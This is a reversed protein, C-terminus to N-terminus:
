DREGVNHHDEVRGDETPNDEIQRLRRFLNRLDRGGGITFWITVCFATFVTLWTWVRWFDLWREDPVDVLLNYITGIIFVVTWVLPWGLTIYTVVRDSGTFEKTFGLKELWTTPPPVDGGEGEVAHRGRHLMRDMDFETRGLISVLVYMGVAYVSTWFTIEQGTLGDKIYLAVACPWFFTDLGAIFVSADYQKIVVGTTALVMGTIMAAWAGGTSGRKWYLSGTLTLFMAIYQTPRYLLSFVFIFVAVGLVSARLLWLHQRPTFPRKRFPLIVDQILISGWSHLYTDNTSIFAALMAACMLGLLGPPLMTAVALPTRLQNRLTETQEPTDASVQAIADHVVAADEAFDPHHMFTRVCIPLIVVILILVRPRWGNLIGAMKAEHADTAACNYGQTGQWGLAGYFIIFVSIVYYWFNFHEEQGLKFPHVLSEQEPADLLTESIQDWSFMWLLLLILLIFFLNCFIGQLFDTVMVAIQGGLFVFLVAVALLVFMVLPFTPITFGAAGVEAPLGCLAIFFRAGIAPFVGFNIIGALFAILGAFVRFPRSYRVEFFQALTMARTQRYRYIVWGSIAMVIMAPGEMLGWWYPTYGVKYNQEFYWVLTIVGVAAISNAVSILYRGGCRGAALFATVSRTYRRTRLAGGVLVLLLALVIVWDVLHV